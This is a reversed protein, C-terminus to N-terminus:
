PVLVLVLLLAIITWRRSVTAKRWRMKVERGVVGRTPLEKGRSIGSTIVRIFDMRPTQILLLVLTPKPYVAATTTTQIITWNEGIQGGEEKMKTQGREQLELHQRVTVQVQVQDTARISFERPLLVQNSILVGTTTPSDQEQEEEEEGPQRDRHQLLLPGATTNNITQEGVPHLIMRLLLLLLPQHDRHRLSALLVISIMITTTITAVVVSTIHPRMRMRMTMRATTMMTGELIGVMNGVLRKGRGKLLLLM